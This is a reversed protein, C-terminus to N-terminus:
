PTRTTLLHELGLIRLVALATGTPNIVQYAVDHAVAHRRGELLASVGACDCFTTAALDVLLRSVGADVADTIAYDLRGATGLDIDGAVCLRIALPTREVTIAFNM